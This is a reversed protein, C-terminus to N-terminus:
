GGQEMERVVLGFDRAPRVRTSQSYWVRVTGSGDEGQPELPEEYISCLGRHDRLTEGPRVQLGTEEMFAMLPM